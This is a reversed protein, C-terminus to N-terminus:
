DEKSEATENAVAGTEVKAAKVLAKVDEKTMGLAIALAEQQKGTLGALNLGRVVSTLRGAATKPKKAHPEYVYSKALELAEAQTKCGRLQAQLKIVFASLALAQVASEGGQVHNALIFNPLVIEFEGHNKTTVGFKLDM